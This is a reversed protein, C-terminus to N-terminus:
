SNQQQKKNEYMSQDAHRLLAQENDGHQPYHAIGISPYITASYGMLEFPQSFSAHIKQAVANSQEPTDINELLVVFEDGGFRAVTDCERMSSELRRAIQELLLDGAMHGHNDNVAKFKDLDMYLLSFIKQNRKARAIASHIRDYFLTRNPLHTLQDYLALHELRAMMQKREVAAAIQTSVFQLLETNKKSYQHKPSFSKLVLAGMVGTHSKLPVGLWSQLSQREHTANYLHAENTNLVQALLNNATERGDNGFSLVVQERTYPFSLFGSTKDRLAVSFNDAPLHESIIKHIEAFLTQLDQTNHSAEAIAFVAQQASEAQKRQTIDRAVAVRHQDKESWRASWMIHVIEGDKRIYRNEFHPQVEGAVIRDVTHLTLQRDDPHVLELMQKGMMEAQSYGFVQEASPSVYLFHGNKNVVCLTDVLLDMYKGLAPFTLPTM